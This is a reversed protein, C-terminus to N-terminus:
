LFEILIYYIYLKPATTSVNVEWHWDNKPIEPKEQETDFFKLM